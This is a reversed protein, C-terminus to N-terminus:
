SIPQCILDTLPELGTRPLADIAEEIAQARPDGLVPDALAHFKARLEADSPPVEADWKPSMWDGQLRTGNHLVLAVRALRGSPFNANAHDHETM